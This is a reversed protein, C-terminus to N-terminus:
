KSYKKETNDSYVNLTYIQFSSSSQAPSEMKNIKSPTFPHVTRSNGDSRSSFNVRAAGAASISERQRRMDRSVFALERDLIKRCPPLKKYSPSNHQERHQTQPAKMNWASASSAM